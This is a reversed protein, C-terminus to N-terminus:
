ARKDPPSASPLHPLTVDDRMAALLRGKVAALLQGRLPLPIEPDHEAFAARFREVPGGDFRDSSSVLRTLAALVATVEAQVPETGALLVESQLTEFERITADFQDDTPLPTDSGYSQLRGITALLRVYLERRERRAADQREDRIREADRQLKAVEINATTNVQERQADRGFRAVLM